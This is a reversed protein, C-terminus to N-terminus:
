GLLPLWRLCTWSRIKEAVSTTQKQECTM